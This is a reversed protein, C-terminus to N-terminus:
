VSVTNIMNRMVSKKNGEIVLCLKVLSEKTSVTNDKVDGMFLNELTHAHTHPPLGGGQRGDEGTDKGVTDLLPLVM